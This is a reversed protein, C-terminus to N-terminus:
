VNVCMMRGSVKLLEAPGKGELGGGTYMLEMVALAAASEAGDSVHEIILDTSSLSTHTAVGASSSSSSSGGVGTM